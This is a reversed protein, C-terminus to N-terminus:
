QPSVVGRVRAGPDDDHGCDACTLYRHGHEDFQPVYRHMGVRCRLAKHDHRDTTSKM